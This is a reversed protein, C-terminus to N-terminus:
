GFGNGDPGHRYTQLKVSSAVGDHMLGSGVYQAVTFWARFHESRAPWRIHFHMTFISDILRHIAEMQSNIANTPKIFQM